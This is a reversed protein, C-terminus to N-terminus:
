TFSLGKRFLILLFWIRAELLIVKASLVGPFFGMKLFSKLLIKRM